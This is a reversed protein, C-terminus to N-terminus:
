AWVRGRWRGSSFSRVIGTATTLWSRAPATCWSWEPPWWRLWPSSCGRILHESRSSTWRAGPTRQLTRHGMGIIGTHAAAVDADAGYWRSQRSGALGAWRGTVNPAPDPSATRPGSVETLEAPGATREYYNNRGPELLEQAAM